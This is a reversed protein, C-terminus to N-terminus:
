ASHPGRMSFAQFHTTVKATERAIAEKIQRNLTAEREHSLDRNAQHANRAERTAASEGDGMVESEIHEKDKPNGMNSNSPSEPQSEKFNRRITWIVTVSNKTQNKLEM